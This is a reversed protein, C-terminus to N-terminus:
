LKSWIRGKKKVKYKNLLRRGSGRVLVCVKDGRLANKLAERAFTCASSGWCVIDYFFFFFSNSILFYCSSPPGNIYIYVM